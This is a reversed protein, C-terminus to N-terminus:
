KKLRALTNQGKNIYYTILPPLVLTSIYIAGVLAIGIIIGGSPFGSGEEVAFFGAFVIYFILAPLAFANLTVLVINSILLGFASGKASRNIIQFLAVLGMISIVLAVLGSFMSFLTNILPIWSVLVNLLSVVSMGIILFIHVNAPIYLQTDSLIEANQHARHLWMLYLVLVAIGVGYVILSAVGALLIFVFFALEDEQEIPDVVEQDFDNSITETDSELEDIVLTSSESMSEELLIDVSDDISETYVLAMGVGVLILLLVVMFQSIYGILYRKFRADNNEFKEQNWM